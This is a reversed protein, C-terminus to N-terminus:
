DSGSFRAYYMLMDTEIFVLISKTEDEVDCIAFDCISKVLLTCTLEEAFM